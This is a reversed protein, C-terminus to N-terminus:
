LTSSTEDPVLRVQTQVKKEHKRTCDGSSSSFVIIWLLSSLLYLKIMLEELTLFMKGNRIRRRSSTAWHKEERPPNIITRWCRFALIISKGGILINLDNRVNEKRIRAAKKCNKVTIYAESWSDSDQELWKEEDGGM